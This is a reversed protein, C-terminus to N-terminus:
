NLKKENLALYFFILGIPLAMIGSIILLYKGYKKQSKIGISGIIMMISALFGFIGRILLEINTIVFFNIVNMVSLILLLIGYILSSIYLTKRKM